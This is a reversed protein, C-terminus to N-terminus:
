MKPLTCPKLMPTSKKIVVDVLEKLLHLSTTQTYIQFTNLKPLYKIIREKETLEERGEADTNEIEKENNTSEKKFKKLVDYLSM